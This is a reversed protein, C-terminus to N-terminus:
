EKESLTKIIGALKNGGSQLASIVNKAPSQLLGIVDGILEDRSKLSSLRELQDDGIYICEEVYAAKLIPKALKKRFEKILKAPVNGTETFMVSTENKLVDKLEDYTGEFKEFAKRLLTNKVVILKIDKEFCKRRLSSTDDANLASIDALYFHKSENITQALNEVVKAKEDRTM